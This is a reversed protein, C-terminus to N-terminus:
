PGELIARHGGLDSSDGGVPQQILGMHAAPERGAGICGCAQKGHSTRARGLGALESAPQECPVCWEAVPDPKVAEGANRM